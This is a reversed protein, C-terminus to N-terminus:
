LRPPLSRNPIDDKEMLLAYTRTITRHTHWAGAPRSPRRDAAGAGAEAAMVDDFRDLRLDVDTEKALREMLAAVRLLHTPSRENLREAAALVVTLLALNLDSNLM